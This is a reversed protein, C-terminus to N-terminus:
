DKSWRTEPIAARAKGAAAAAVDDTQNAGAQCKEHWM